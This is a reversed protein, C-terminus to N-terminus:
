IFVTITNLNTVLHVYILWFWFMLYYLIIACSTSYIHSASFCSVFNVFRLCVLLQSFRWIISGVSIYLAFWIYLSDVTSYPSVILDVIIVNLFYYSHTLFLTVKTNVNISLLYIVVFSSLENDTFLNMQNAFKESLFIWWFLWNKSKNINPDRDSVKM